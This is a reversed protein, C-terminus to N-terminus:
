KVWGGNVLKYGAGSLNVGTNNKPRGAVIFYKEASESVEFFDRLVGVEVGTLANFWSINHEEWSSGHEIGTRTSRSPILMKGNVDIAPCPYKLSYICGQEGKFYANGLYPLEVQKLKM